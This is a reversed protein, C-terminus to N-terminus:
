SLGASNGFSWPGELSHLTKQDQMIETSIAESNLVKVFGIRCARLFVTQEIDATGYQVTADWKCGVNVGALCM